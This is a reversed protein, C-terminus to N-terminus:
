TAKIDKVLCIAGPRFIQFDMRMVVRVWIQYARMAGNTQDGAERSIAVTPNLRIGFACERHDGVSAFSCNAASPSGASSLNVPVASTVLKQLNAYDAPPMLPQNTTDKLRGMSGATRPAMIVASPEFNATRVTQVAHVYNDFNIPGGGNEYVAGVSANYYIGEPQSSAGTGVLGVRDMETALEALLTQEIIQAANASDQILEESAKVLIGCTKAAFTVQSFTHDAPTFDANEAKWEGSPTTDVKAFKTESTGCPIFVAGARSLVSLARAEDIWRAALDDTATFGGGTTVGLSLARKQVDRSSWRNTVLGVVFEGIGFSPGEDGRQERIDPAMRELHRYGRMERGTSLERFMLPAGAAIKGRDEGEAYSGSQDGRGSRRENVSRSAEDEAMEQAQMRAVQENLARIEADRADWEAELARAQEAPTGDEIKDLTKRNLETLALRKEMLENLKKSWQM